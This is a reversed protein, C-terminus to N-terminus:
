IHHAPSGGPGGAVWVGWLQAMLRRVLVSLWSHLKAVRVSNDSGGLGGRRSEGPRRIEADAGQLIASLFNDFTRLVARCVDGRLSLRRDARSRVARVRDAPLHRPLPVGEAKAETQRYCGRCTGARGRSSGRNCGRCAGTNRLDPATLRLRYGASNGPATSRVAGSHDAALPRRIQEMARPMKAPHLVAAPSRSYRLM